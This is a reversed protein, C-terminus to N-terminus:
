GQGGDQIGAEGPFPYRNDFLPIGFWMMETSGKSNTGKVYLYLYLSGAHLSPNADEGMHDQFFTLKQSLQM